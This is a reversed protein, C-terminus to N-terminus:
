SSFNSSSICAILGSKFPCFSIWLKPLLVVVKAESHLHLAFSWGEEGLQELTDMITDAGLPELKMGFEVPNNNLILADEM